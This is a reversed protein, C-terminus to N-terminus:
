DAFISRPAQPYKAKCEETVSVDSAFGWHLVRWRSGRTSQRLLAVTAADPGVDAGNPKIAMAVVYAWGNSVRLHSVKFIVPQKLVKMVPVRLADMIAKRERSGPRPTHAGAASGAWAASLLLVCIAISCVLRLRKM